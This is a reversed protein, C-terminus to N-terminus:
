NTNEYVLVVSTEAQRKSINWYTQLLIDKELESVMRFGQRQYFRIAWTANAWAGVLIKTKEKMKGTLENLLASGIGKGQHSSHVYAHRILAADKVKQLGMIGALGDSGYWGFFNVGAEIESKLASDTMYPEHWCDAPIAGKYANAAENIITAITDFDNNTCPQIM